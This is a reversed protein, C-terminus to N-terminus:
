RETVLIRALNHSSKTADASPENGYSSRRQRRRRSSVGFAAAGRLPPPRAKRGGRLTGPEEFLHTAGPIVALETPVQWRTTADENLGIV